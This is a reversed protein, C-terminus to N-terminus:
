WATFPEPLAILPLAWTGRNQKLDSTRTHGKYKYINIPLAAGRAVCLYTVGLKIESGGQHVVAKHPKVASM